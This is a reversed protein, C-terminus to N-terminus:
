RKFIIKRIFHLSERFLENKLYCLCMIANPVLVCVAARVAIGAIGSVHIGSCLIYTVIGAAATIIFYLLHQSYFRLPSRKFYNKFLVNTRCIFNLVVITIITALIIGTIGLFYGLVFNLILNAAAEAVFWFRCEYFLGNGDLYMSRVYTMNIAYFYLCFLAMNLDSLLMETNGHMWVLMFPQYICLMCISCWGVIWMFIFNIKQMDKYNKEVSETVISNGASASISGIIIAMIGYLANYIYYYNDYITVAVLGILVSLVINDFSNRAVDGIKGIFVAKIQKTLEKKVKPDINGDPVIDPYKKRSVIQLIINNAITGVPLLVTYVYYNKFVAIAALQLINMVASTVTYVSSIIDQRQMASFLTNKYAFLLYSVATNFLYMMFLIYMNLDQPVSGKVLYKLFPAICSGALLIIIGIRFYVKKLYNIIACISGTDNEVVPRYLIYIVATSFGLDTLNLVQLISVFLGNLGQYEAGLTYIIATRIIFAFLLHVAQKVAGSIINRKANKVRSDSM